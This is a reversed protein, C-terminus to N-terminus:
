FFLGKKYILPTALEESNYASGYYVVICVDKDIQGILEEGYIGLLSIASDFSTSTKFSNELNQWIAKWFQFWICVMLQNHYHAKEYAAFM